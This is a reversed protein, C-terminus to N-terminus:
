FSLGYALGVTVTYAQFRADGSVWTAGSNIEPYNSGVRRNFGYEGFASLESM